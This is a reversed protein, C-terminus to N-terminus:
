WQWAGHGGPLWVDVGTGPPLGGPRFYVATADDHSGATRAARVLGTALTAADGQEATSGALAEPAFDHVGDTTLLFADAAVPTPALGLPGPELGLACTIRAGLQARQMGSLREADEGYAALANHDRSLQSPPQGGALAYARSDGAHALWAPGDPPAVVVTLTTGGAGRSHACVQENAYDLADPAAGAAHRHGVVAAVARAACGGGDRMGGMGDAVAAIQTGDPLRVLAGRDQNEPRGPGAETALACGPAIATADTDPEPLLRELLAAELAGAM